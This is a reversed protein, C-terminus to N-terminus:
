KSKLNELEKLLIKINRNIECKRDFQKENRM